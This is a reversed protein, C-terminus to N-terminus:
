KEIHDRRRTQKCFLALSKSMEPLECCCCGVTVGVGDGTAAGTAVGVVVVVASAAFEVAVVAAAVSSFDVGPSVGM